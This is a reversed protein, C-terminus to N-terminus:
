AQKPVLYHSTDWRSKKPGRPSRTAKVVSSTVAVDSLEQQVPEGPTATADSTVGQTVEGVPQCPEAAAAAKEEETKYAVEHWKDLFLVIKTPASTEGQDYKTALERSANDLLLRGRWHKAGDEDHVWLHIGGDVVKAKYVMPSSHYLTQVIACSGASGRTGLLQDEETVTLDIRDGHKKTM